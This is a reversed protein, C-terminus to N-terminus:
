KKTEGYINKIFDLGNSEDNWIVEGNKFAANSKKVTKANFPNRKSKIVVRGRLISKLQIIAGNSVKHTPKQGFNIRYKFHSILDKGSKNNSVCHFVKFADSAKKAERGIVDLANAMIQQTRNM